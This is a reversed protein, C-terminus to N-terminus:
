PVHVADLDQGSGPTLGPGSFYDSWVGGTFSVVETDAVARFGAVDTTTALFSMYYTGGKVTLGDIDANGPLGNASADFVRAFSTGNWSYIDADDATGGVGPVAANGLTSFYLTTGLISIADIDHNGSTLGQATGDFYLTWTGADYLVVDEDQVAGIGPVDLSTNGFSVYFTDADVLHMGDINAQFGMTAIFDLIKSYAVGDYEYINANNYPGDVGPVAATNLVNSFFLAGASPLQNAAAVSLFRLMGGVSDGATFDEPDSPNTMYGNGDYVAYRGEAGAVFIADKTKLAQLQASYQERPAPTVVGTAGDQWTYLLGDEAHITMHGGQIVPVHTEGAASLFRLLTNSRSDDPGTVANGAPIDATVGPVYPEGNVLFWRAHYDISTTYTGDSIAGNLAPDIESYFLVVENDYATSELPVGQPDNYAIGDAADHTVAGYLGMYVQKQPHTGSHYLFTGPRVGTWSYSEIGGATAEFGFSRVRQTLNARAGTTGDNWTPGAGGASAPLPLGPIVISTPEPLDNRLNITLTSDGVPVTLRPGPLTIANGCGNDLNADDDEAFGWIPVTSGDLMMKTTAGACLFYDVAAVPGATLALAGGLMALKFTTNMINFRKM